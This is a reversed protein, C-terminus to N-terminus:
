LRLREGLRRLPPYIRFGLAYVLRALPEPMRGVQLLMRDIMSPRRPLLAPLARVTELDGSRASSRLCWRFDHDVFRDVGCRMDACGIEAYRELLLALRPSIDSPTRLERGRWREGLSDTVGGTNLRYAVTVRSSVAVPLALAIRLWYLTDEGVVGTSFNGITGLNTKPIAASSTWLVPRGNAVREFYNIAELRGPGPRPPRFRGDSGCTVYSAGILGADPFRVRLRDLEALHDPLWIDDADLFAIWDHRAAQMGTNRAAGPGANAQTLIRIRSDGIAEVAEHSGDTSGDDVVILEFDRMSQALASAIAPEVTERKNWLPIVISFM